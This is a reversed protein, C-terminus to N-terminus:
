MASKGRTALNNLDAVSARCPTDIREAEHRRIAFFAELNLQASSGRRCGPCSLWPVKPGPHNPGTAHNYVVGALTRREPHSM